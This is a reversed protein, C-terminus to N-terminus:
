IQEVHQMTRGATRQNASRITQEATRRRKTQKDSILILFNMFCSLRGTPLNSLLLNLPKFQFNGEVQHNILSRVCFCGGIYIIQKEREFPHQLM